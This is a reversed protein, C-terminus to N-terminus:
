FCQGRENDAQHASHRPRLARWLHAPSLRDDPRCATDNTMALKYLEDLRVGSREKSDQETRGDDDLGDDDLEWQPEESYQSEADSADDAHLPVRVRPATKPRSTPRM